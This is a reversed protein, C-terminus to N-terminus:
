GKVVSNDYSMIKYTIQCLKSYWSQLANSPLIVFQFTTLFFCEHCAHLRVCCKGPPLSFFNLFGALITASGALIWVLYKRINHSMIKLYLANVNKAVASMYKANRWCRIQCSFWYLYHQWLLSIHRLVNDILHAKGIDYKLLHVIHSQFM